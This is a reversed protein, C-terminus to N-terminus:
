DEESQAEELTLFKAGRKIARYIKEEGIEDGTCYGDGEPYKLALPCRDCRGYFICIFDEAFMPLRKIAEYREVGQLKFLERHKGIPERQSRKVKM